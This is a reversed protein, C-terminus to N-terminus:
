ENQGVRKRIDRTEGASDVNKSSKYVSSPRTTGLSIELIQLKVLPISLNTWFNFFAGDRSFGPYRPWFDDVMMGLGGMRHERAM